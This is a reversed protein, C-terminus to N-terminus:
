LLKSFSVCDNDAKVAVSGFSCDKCTNSKDKLRRVKQGGAMALSVVNVHRFRERLRRSDSESWGCVRDKALSTRRCTCTVGSM